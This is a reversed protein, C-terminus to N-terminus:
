ERKDEKRQNKSKYTNIINNFINILADIDEASLDRISRLMSASGNHELFEKLNNPLYGSSLLYDEVEQNLDRALAIVEKRSLLQNGALVRQLKEPSMCTVQLDKSNQIDQQLRRIFEEPMTYNDVAKQDLIGSIEPSITLKAKEILFTRELEIRDEESTSLARALKKLLEVSATRRSETYPKEMESIHTPTCGIKQALEKQTLNLLERRTKIIEWLRM